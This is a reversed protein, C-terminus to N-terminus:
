EGANLGIIQNAKLKNLQPYYELKQGVLTQVNGNESPRHSVTANHNGEGRLIFQQKSHDYTIKDAHGDLQRSELRANEEASLSFTRHDSDAGPLSVVSLRECRLVGSQPPFETSSVTNVNIVDGLRRVPGFIGEVHQNLQVFERNLNGNLSGIFSANVYVFPNDSTQVPQNARAIVGPSVKLRNGRDPQTSKIWGPGSAHFDGSHLNVILDSFDAEHQATVVGAVKQDLTIHVRSECEIRAIEIAPRAKGQTEGTSISFEDGNGGHNRNLKVDRDFHVNLGACTLEIAHTEGDSLIARINGMFRATRGSFEMSEAWYIDLPSPKELPKGDFGQDVVLRIRGSGDVSVQEQSEDVDIRQGEVRRNASVVAAPAGFLSIGRGGDFGNEAFLVNGDAHFSKESETATYDVEVDGKLWINSWDYEQGAPKGNAGTSSIVTSGPHSKGSPVVTAEMTDASFHTFGPSSNTSIRSLSSPNSRSINHNSTDSVGAIVPQVELELDKMEDIQRFSVTLKQRAFGTVQPASLRVQDRAVFLQPRLRALNFGTSPSRLPDAPLPLADSHIAPEAAALMTMEITQGLLRFQKASQVIQADGELIIKQQPSQQFSLSKKWMAEISSEDVDFDKDRSHRIIGPGRFQVTQLENSSSHQVLVHPVLVETGDQSITVPFPRGNADTKQNWLELLNQDITYRLNTMTATVNQAEMHVVVRSGEALLSQLEVDRARADASAGHLVANSDVRPRMQLTLQTCLLRDIPGAALPRQVLIQREPRPNKEEFGFFTATLTQVLFEFGNAADITLRTAERQRNKDPLMADCTVRGNLRVSHVDTIAMLGEDPNTSTLLQIEVGGEARARHTQWVIVVPSGSWIKMSKESIHFNRGEIHLGDPGDIRVDGSLFGSTIRGFQTEEIEFATSRDLQASAATIRIPTTEPKGDSWLMAVPSVQVSHNKNFLSFQNFVLYRDGDRFKKGATGVWKDQPFWQSLIPAFDATRVVPSASASMTHQTREISLWPSTLRAYAVYIGVLFLGTLLTRHGRSLESNLM